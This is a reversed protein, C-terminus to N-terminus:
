RTYHYNLLNGTIIQLVGDDYLTLKWLVIEHSNLSSHITMPKLLLEPTPFLFAFALQSLRVIQSFM